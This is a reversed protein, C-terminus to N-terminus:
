DAAVVKSFQKFAISHSAKQKLYLSKLIVSEYSKFELPTTTNSVIWPAIQAEAFLTTWRGGTM